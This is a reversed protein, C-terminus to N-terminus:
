LTSAINSKNRLESSYFLSELFVDAKWASGGGTQRMTDNEPRELSTCFSDIKCVAKKLLAKTKAIMEEDDKLSGFSKESERESEDDPDDYVKARPRRIAAPMPRLLIGPTGRDCLAQVPVYQRFLAENEDKFSEEENIGNTGLSIVAQSEVRM